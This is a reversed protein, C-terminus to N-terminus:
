FGSPENPESAALIYAKISEMVSVVRLPDLRKGRQVTAWRGDPAFAGIFVTEIEGGRAHKLAKELAAVVEAGGATLGLKVPGSIMKKTRAM